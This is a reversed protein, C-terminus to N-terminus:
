FWLHTQILADAGPRDRGAAFLLRGGGTITVGPLPSLELMLGVRHEGTSVRDLDRDGFDYKARLSVGNWLVLWAEQYVAVVTTMRGGEPALARGISVEGLLTLPVDNSLTFPNFGYAFGIADLDGRAAVDRRKIMAHASAHWWLDRWGLNLAAGWGPDASDPAEFANFNRFGSISAFPYNAAFGLEVGLATDEPKSVDMEFYKRIFSTHDDIHTGFSPQFIGARAYAMYPLEHVMLFANRAFVPAPKSEIVAGLGAVRGRAALTGMMTVHEMPHLSVDLDLQMPFINSSGSWYAMRYDGGFSLLPDARLDGYRGDWLSYRTPAGLPRGFVVRSGDRGVGIGAEAEAPSSPISRSSTRTFDEAFFDRLVRVDDESLLERQYDSYSREQLPMISLTSQGYYRGSTNRLGGGTPNVHCALCSMSCKRESLDPDVWGKKDEYTPSIHCNGCTRGSRVAYQPLASAPAACVLALFLLLRKV